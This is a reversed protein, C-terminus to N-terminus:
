PYDREILYCAPCGDHHLHLPEAEPCLIMGCWFCEPDQCRDLDHSYIAHALLAEQKVQELTRPGCWKTDLYSELRLRERWPNLHQPDWANLLYAM